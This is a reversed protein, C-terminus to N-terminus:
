QKVAEGKKQIASLLEQTSSFDEGSKKALEISHQAMMAAEKDRGMKHLINAYTDTNYYKDDLKVSQAIWSEAEKLKVKDDVRMFYTWCVANLANANNWLYKPAYESALEMYKTTNKNRKYYDLEQQVGESLIEANKSQKVHNVAKELM